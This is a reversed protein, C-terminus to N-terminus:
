VLGRSSRVWIQGWVGGPHYWSWLVLGCLICLYVKGSAEGLHGVTGAACGSCDVTGPAGRFSRRLLWGRARNRKGAFKVDLRFLGGIERAMGVLNGWGWDWGWGWGQGQGRASDEAPLKDYIKIAYGNVPVIRLGRDMLWSQSLSNHAGEVHLVNRVVVEHNQRYGPLRLRLRVDGYGIAKGAVRGGINHIDREDSKAYQTYRVFEQRDGCIHSTTVCDFYWCEKSPSEKNRGTIWYNEISTTMMTM